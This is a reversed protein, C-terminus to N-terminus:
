DKLNFKAIIERDVGGDKRKPLPSSKNIANEVAQDYAAIGSSKIMKVSMVDGTPAQMIKFEAQPNGPLDKAGGYNVDPINSKIKAIVAAKYNPDGKLGSSRAAEGNGGSGSVDGAIRKMNEARLKDLAAQEAAEKRKKEQALKKKEEAAALKEAKLKEAKLEEQKQAELQERKKELALKEEQLRKVQLQKRKKEQEIAIDVKPAEKPAEEVPKNIVPPAVKEEVPKPPEVSPAVPAAERYKIDWVEAEVTVPTESHWDIGIWFFVLLACHMLLALSLASFRGPEPPIFYPNATASSM